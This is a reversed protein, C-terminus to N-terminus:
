RIILPLYINNGLDVPTYRPGYSPRPEGFEFAGMDPQGNITFPDNFNALTEGSDIAPAGAELRLDRSSPYIAVDWDAELTANTLDSFSASRGNDEVGAPLDVLTQYRVNDWKFDPSGGTTGWANYDFDRFNEPESVTLFEFAYRTGLFLNNRYVANRWVDSGDGHGNGHKVSTNHMVYLGTTQNNMKIPYSQQNLLENRFIYAPGGRIPQVSVGMRTNTARNRWVRVNAMNYDIEIGDDVCFAVDNGYVDNGFSQNDGTFPQLSICDGFYRVRNHCVINGDGRLDIGREGPIGVGPWTTRGNIINDCIFQHHELDSDRRNVIGYDVDLIKNYRLTIHQTHQADIGWRGNQVTFREFIIHSLTQDYNGLTVIGSNINSGDIVATGFEPGLFVIPHSATGSAKLQFPTYTGEAVHFIDGPQADNAAAQLGLFPNLETGSGGGNGPVVYRAQGDAAPQPNTLTVATRTQTSGGGDPDTLTLRLDYTQGSELFLASAAWYNLNLPSGNVVIDPYARMGPAAQQWTSTGQQRFELSFSSNLNTDGDIWWVVGIHNISADVRIDGPILASSPTNPAAFSFTGTCVLFIFALIVTTFRKQM